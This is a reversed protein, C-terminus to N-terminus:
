AVQNAIVSLQGFLRAGPADHAIETVNLGSAASLLDAFSLIAVLAVLTGSLTVTDPVPNYRAVHLRAAIISAPTPTHRRGCRWQRM